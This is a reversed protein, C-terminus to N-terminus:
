ARCCCYCCPKFRCSCCCPPSAAVDVYAINAAPPHKSPFCLLAFSSSHLAPGDPLGVAVVLLSGPLRHNICNGLDQVWGASKWATWAAILLLLLHM